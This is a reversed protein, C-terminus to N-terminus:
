HHVSKKGQIYNSTHNKKGGQIKLTTGADRLFSAQWQGPWGIAFILGRQPRPWAINFYPMIGNSPRGGITRLHVRAGLGLPMEYPDFDNGSARAGKNYHLVCKWITNRVVKFDIAKIESLIPTDQSGNNKFNLM